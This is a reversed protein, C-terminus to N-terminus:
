AIRPLFRGTKAMYSDYESFFEALYREEIKVTHWYLLWLISTLIMVLASGSMLTLGTLIFLNGTYIPNRIYGYIGDTVLTSPVYSDSLPSYQKGLRSKGLVFIVSGGIAVLAGFSKLAASAELRLLPLDDRFFCIATVIVAGYSVLNIIVQSGYINPIRVNKEQRYERRRDHRYFLLYILSIFSLVTMLALQEIMIKEVIVTVFM